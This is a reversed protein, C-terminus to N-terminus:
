ETLPIESRGTATVEHSKVRVEAFYIFKRQERNRRYKVSVRWM